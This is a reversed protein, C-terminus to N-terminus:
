VLGDIVKLKEELLKLNQKGAVIKEKIEDVVGSNKSSSFFGVNNEWLAIDSELQKIKNVIKNREIIIKDEYNEMTLYNDIKSKFKQVEKNETDLSMKDYLGNVASRFEQLIKDKKKYPVHGIDSWRGQFNRIARLTEENDESAQYNLVDQVLQEKLKLNEAQDSDANDFHSSKNNFFKDCAARFRQWLEESVKRPVPGIKKWQKQVNILKETTSKWDTSDQLSEAIECLEEKKGLNEKLVEKLALYFDRKRDFYLDCAARFREYIRNNDKKPAFGITRWEKQLDIIETSTKNWDKHNEIKRNAIEEAKECLVTKMALNVKQDSKINDYFQQHKRNITTTTKKFRAWLDEKKERPVPGIERWQEHYKQLTNFAKVASPEELLKEAEECLRIKAQMNKKLDLDRLEKNIKIYDYFNEVHHHYSDWLGKLNQQPVMGIEHWRKQLVRFENFTKNIAEKRNVLGKIEELIKYKEKLNEEKENEVNKSIESKREKIKYLLDKMKIELEDSTSEFEEEKGGDELFKKKAEAIEANHKKYFNTKIAEVRDRMGSFSEGDLILELRNVLESKEMVDYHPEEEKKPEQKNEEQKSAEQKSTEEEAIVEEQIEKQEVEEQDPEDRALHNEPKDDSNEKEHSSNKENQADLNENLENEHSPNTLDRAEM